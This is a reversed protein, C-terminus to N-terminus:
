KNFGYYTKQLNIIKIVLTPTRMFFCFSHCNNVIFEIKGKKM